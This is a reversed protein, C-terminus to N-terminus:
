GSASHLQNKVVVYSLRNNGYVWYVACDTYTIQLM